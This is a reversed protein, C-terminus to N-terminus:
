CKLSRKAVSNCIRGAQRALDRYRVVRSSRCLNHDSENKPPSFHRPLDAVIARWAHVKYVAGEGGGGLFFFFYIFIDPRGGGSVLLGPGM